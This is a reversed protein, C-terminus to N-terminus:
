LNVTKFVRTESLLLEIVVYISKFIMKIQFVQLSDIAFMLGWGNDLLRFM